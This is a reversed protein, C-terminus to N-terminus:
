PNENRSRVLRFRTHFKHFTCNLVVQIICATPLVSKLIECSHSYPCYYGCEVHINFMDENFMNQFRDVTLIGEEKIEGREYREKESKIDRKKERDRKKM